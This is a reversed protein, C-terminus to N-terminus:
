NDTKPQVIEVQYCVICVEIYSAGTDYISVKEFEWRAHILM